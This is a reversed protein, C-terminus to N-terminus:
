RSVCRPLIRNSPRQFSPFLVNVQQAGHTRDATEHPCPGTQSNFYQNRSLKPSGSRASLATRLNGTPPMEICHAPPSTTCTCVTFSTSLFSQYFQCRSLADLSSISVESSLPYLRVHFWAYAPLVRYRCSLILLRYEAFCRPFLHVRRLWAVRSTNRAPSSTSSFVPWTSYVTQLNSHWCGMRPLFHHTVTSVDCELYDHMSIPRYEARRDPYCPLFSRPLCPLSVPADILLPSFHHHVSTPM